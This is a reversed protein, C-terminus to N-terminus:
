PATFCHTSVGFRGGASSNTEVAISSIWGTMDAPASGTGVWEQNEGHGGLDTAGPGSCIQRVIHESRNGTFTGSKEAELKKRLLESERQLRRARSKRVELWFYGAV